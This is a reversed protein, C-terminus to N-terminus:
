VCQSTHLDRHQTFIHPIHLEAQRIKGEIVHNVPKQGLYKVVVFRYLNGFEVPSFTVVWSLFVGWCLFAPRDLETLGKENELSCRIHDTTQRWGIVSWGGGVPTHTNPCFLSLFFGYKVVIYRM